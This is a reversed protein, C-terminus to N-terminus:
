ITKRRNGNTTVRMDGTTTLRLNPNEIDDLDLVEDIPPPLKPLFDKLGDLTLGYIFYFRSFSAENIYDRSRSPAQQQPEEVFELISITLPTIVTCIDDTVSAKYVGPALGTFVNSPQSSGLPADNQDLLQYSVNGTALGVNANFSITGDDLDQGTENTAVGIPNGWSLMCTIPQPIPVTRLETIPNYDCSQSISRVTVSNLFEPAESLTFLANNRVLGSSEFVTPITKYNIGGDVSVQFNGENSSNPQTEWGIRLSGDTRREFQLGDNATSADLCLESQPTIRARCIKIESIDDDRYYLDYNTGAILGTFLVGDNYANAPIANDPISQYTGTIGIRVEPNKGLRDYVVFGIINSGGPSASDEPLVALIYSLVDM